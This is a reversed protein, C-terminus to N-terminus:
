HISQRSRDYTNRDSPPNITGEFQATGAENKLSGPAFLPMASPMPAAGGSLPTNRLDATLPENRQPDVKALIPHAPNPWPSFDAQDAANRPWRSGRVAAVPEALDSRDPQPTAIVGLEKGTATNIDAAVTENTHSAATTTTLNPKVVNNNDLRVLNGADSATLKSKNQANDKETSVINNSTLLPPSGPVTSEATNPSLQPSPPSQVTPQKWVPALDATPAPPTSQWAQEPASDSKSSVNDAIRVVYPGVAGLLLLLGVATLVGLSLRASLLRGPHSAIKTSRSRSSHRHKTPSSPADLDPIRAIVTLEVTGPDDLSVSCVGAMDPMTQQSSTTGPAEPTKSYTQDTLNM